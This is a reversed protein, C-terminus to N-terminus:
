LKESWIVSVTRFHPPFKPSQSFVKEVKGPPKFVPTQNPGNQGFILVKKARWTAGGTLYLCIKVLEKIGFRRLKHGSFLAFEQNKFRKLYQLETKAQHFGQSFCGKPLAKIRASRKARFRMTESIFPTLFQFLRFNVFNPEKQGNKAM